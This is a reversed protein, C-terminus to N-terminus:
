FGDCFGEFLFGFVLDETEVEALFWFEKGEPERERLRAPEELFFAGILGGNTAYLPM